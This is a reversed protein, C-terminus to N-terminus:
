LFRDLIRRSTRDLALPDRILYQIGHSDAILLMSGAVRRIDEEGRLVLSCPGRDTEVTWTSPTAFGSVSRIALITPMFERQALEDEILLRVPQDVSALDEIWALEHGDPSMLAVRGSPDTIPFARVPVVGTHRSGDSLSLVLNGFADRSLDLRGGPNM